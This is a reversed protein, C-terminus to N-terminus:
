IFASSLISKLHRKAEPPLNANEKWDPGTQFWLPSIGRQKWLNLFCGLYGYLPGLRLFRGQYLDGSTPPGAKCIGREEAREVAKASLRMLQILRRAVGADTLEEAQFPMFADEDMRDCLAKLQALDQAAENDGQERAGDILFSLTSRWSVLGMRHKEVRALFEWAASPIPDIKLGKDQCRQCLEFWVRRRRYEPVIFLLLGPVTLHEFYAVPQNETLGADFKSEIVLINGEESQGLMDPQGSDKSREQTRFALDEPFRIGSQACFRVFCKRTIASNKLIVRLAETGVNERKDAFCEILDALIAMVPFICRLTYGCLGWRYAYSHM